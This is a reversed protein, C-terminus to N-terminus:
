QRGEEEEEAQRLHVALQRPVCRVDDVRCPGHQREHRHHTMGKNM